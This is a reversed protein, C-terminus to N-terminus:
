QILASLISVISAIAVAYIAVPWSVAIYGLSGTLAGLTFGRGFFAYCPRRRGSHQHPRNAVGRRDPGRGRRPTFLGLARM